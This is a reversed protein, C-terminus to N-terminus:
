TSAFSTMYIKPQPLASTHFIDNEWTNPGVIEIICRM